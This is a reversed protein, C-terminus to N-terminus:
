VCRSTYLLCILRRYFKKMLLFEIDLNNKDSQIWEKIDDDNVNGTQQLMICYFKDCRPLLLKQIKLDKFDNDDAESCGLSEISFPSLRGFHLLIRMKKM